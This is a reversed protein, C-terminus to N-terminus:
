AATSRRPDTTRACSWPCRPTDPLAPLPSEARYVEAVRHFAPKPSRDRRVLGFAWDTIPHGGTFWEDTYSFTCTGALGCGFVEELHMALLEAQEDEGNRLSDIGYEGLILPKEDAQNQLRQLYARFKERQHLYVNM